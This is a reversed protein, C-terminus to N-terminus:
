GAAARREQGTVKRNTMDRLADAADKLAYTKGPLPRLMGDRYLALAETLM